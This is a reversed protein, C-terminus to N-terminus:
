VKRKISFYNKEQVRRLTEVSHTIILDVLVSIKIDLQFQINNVWNWDKKQSYFKQLQSM